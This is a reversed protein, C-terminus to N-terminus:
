RPQAANMPTASSPPAGGGMDSGTTSAMSESRAHSHSRSQSGSLSMSQSRSHARGGFSSSLGGYTSSAPTIGGDTVDIDSSAPSCSEHHYLIAPRGGAAAAATPGGTAGGAAAALAAFKTDITLPLSYGGADWPTRNRGSGGSSNPTRSGNNGSGSSGRRSPTKDPSHTPTPLSTSAALVAAADLLITSGPTSDRRILPNTGANLLSTVDM